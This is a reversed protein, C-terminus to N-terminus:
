GFRPFRSDLIDARVVKRLIKIGAGFRSAEGDVKKCWIVLGDEMLYPNEPLDREPSIMKLSINTGPQLSSELEIFLGEVSKNVLKAPILALNGERHKNSGTSNSFM